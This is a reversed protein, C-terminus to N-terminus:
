SSLYRRLPMTKITAALVHRDDPDPRPALITCHSHDVRGSKNVEALTPDAAARTWEEIKKYAM